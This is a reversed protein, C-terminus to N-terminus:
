PGLVQTTWGAASRLYLTRKHLRNAQDQWLEVQDPILRYGGWHPPRPVTGGSYQQELAAYRAVLDDYMVPQSQPSAWAGLQHGRPRAAFYADAEADDLREVRGELRVQRGQLPWHFAAAAFPNATLEAGKRSQFNTFFRLGDGSRGRYLVYRVSPRGAPTATALAMVEPTPVGAAAAEDYWLAFAVLADPPLSGNMVAPDYASGATAALSLDAHCM